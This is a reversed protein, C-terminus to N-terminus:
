SLTKRARRMKFLGCPKLRPARCMVTEVTPSTGAMRLSLRSGSCTLRAMEKCAGGAFLINGSGPSLDGKLVHQKGSHIIGRLMGVLQSLKKSRQLLEGMDITNRDIDGRGVVPRGAGLGNAGKAVEEELM